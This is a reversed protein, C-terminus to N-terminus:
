EHKWDGTAFDWKDNIYAKANNFNTQQQATPQKGAKLAKQYDCYYKYQRKLRLSMVRATRVPKLSIRQTYVPFEDPYDQEVQKFATHYDGSCELLRMVDFACHPHGDNLEDGHHSYCKGTDPFIHIGPDGTESDPSLFRDRGKQIYGNRSLVAEVTNDRNFLQAAKPEGQSATYAETRAKTFVKPKIGLIRLMNAQHTPWDTLIDIFPQPLIPLENRPPLPTTWQYPQGTDKHITPPLVDQVQKDSSARLELVTAKKGDIKIPLQDLQHGPITLQRVGPTTMDPPLAYFVKSREPNGFLRPPNGPLQDVDLGYEALVIRSLEVHDIDIAITNSLAHNLGLGDGPPLHAPNLATIGWGDGRPRKTGPRISCLSYGMNCYHTAWDSMTTPM